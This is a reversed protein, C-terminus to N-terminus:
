LKKEFGFIDKKAPQFRNVRVKRLLEEGQPLKEIIISRCLKELHEIEKLKRGLAEGTAWGSEMERLYCEHLDVQFAGYGKRFFMLTKGGMAQTRNTRFGTNVRVGPLYRVRGIMSLFDDLQLFIADLADHMQVNKEAKALNSYLRLRETEAEAMWKHLSSFALWGKEMMECWDHLEKEVDHLEEVNYISSVNELVFIQRELEALEKEALELELQVRAAEQKEEALRDEHDRRLKAFLSGEMRLVDDREKNCKKKLEDLHGFRLEKRCKLLLLEARNQLAEM